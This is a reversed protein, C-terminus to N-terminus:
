DGVVLRESPQRGATEFARRYEEPWPQPTGGIRDLLVAVLRGRVCVEGGRRIEVDYTVSSRGVRAVRVECDVIDRFWLPALFDAEIHARPHRGYVDERMGLRDVLTVEASEMINFAASNHWAGSADTDSWEIRRQICISAPEGDAPITERGSM